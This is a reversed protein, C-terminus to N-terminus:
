LPLRIWFTSGKGPESDVGIQGRHQEVIKKAIALGLGSGKKKQAGSGVQKFREFVVEREEERIGPGKDSVSLEMWKTPVASAQVEEVVKETKVIVPSGADSFKIANSLLNVLVQLIRERDLSITMDEIETLISVGSDEAFQAVSDIAKGVVEALSEEKSDLELVGSELKEIDLLDRVLLLLRDVNRCALERRSQGVDNLDGYMGQELMELYGRVSTLPTRLDHSVMAVFDRKMQEAEKRDSIDVVTILYRILPGVAFRTLSSEVPIAVGSGTLAFLEFAEVSQRAILDVLAPQEGGQASERLISTVPKLLLEGATLGFLEAARPNVSEISGDEDFSLVGVPMNEILMRIREENAKTLDEQVKRATIDHLVCYFSDDSPSYHVNWSVIIRSGDKKVLLSEFQEDTSNSSIGDLRGLVEGRSEEAIVTVIKRGKLFEPDYGLIRAFAPNMQFFSFDANITCIMDTANDVIARERRNSEDLVEAMRHFGRDLEGIEDEYRQPPLLELGGALRISNDLMMRLRRTITANFGLVLFFALVVNAIVSLLLGLYVSNRSEEFTFPDQGLKQNEFKGIDDITNVFDDLIKQLEYNLLFGDVLKYDSKKNSTVKDLMVRLAPLVQDYITKIQEHQRSREPDRELLRLLRSLDSELQDLHNELGERFRKKGTSDYNIANYVLQYVQVESSDVLYIIERSVRSQKSDQDVKFLLYGVYAMLCVQMTLPLVVMLLAKTAISKSRSVIM